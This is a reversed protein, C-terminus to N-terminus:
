VISRSDLAAGSRMSRTLEDIVEQELGGFYESQVCRVGLRTVTEAKFFVEARFLWRRMTEREFRIDTKYLLYGCLGDIDYGLAYRRWLEKWLQPKVKYITAFRNAPDVTFLKSQELNILM